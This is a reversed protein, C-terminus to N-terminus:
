PKIQAAPEVFSEVTHIALEAAHLEANIAGRLNDLEESDHTSQLLAAMRLATSLHSQAQGIKEISRFHGVPQSYIGLDTLTQHFTM